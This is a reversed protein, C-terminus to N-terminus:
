FFIKWEIHPYWYQKRGSSGIIRNKPYNGFNFYMNGLLIYSRPSFYYTLCTDMVLASFPFYGVSIRDSSLGPNYFYNNTLYHVTGKRRYGKCNLPNIWYKSGKTVDHWFVVKDHILNGTNFGIFWAHGSFKPLANTGAIKTMRLLPTEMVLSSPYIVAKPFASTNLFATGFNQARTNQM